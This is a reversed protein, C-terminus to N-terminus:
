NGFSGASWTQDYTEWFNNASDWYVDPIGTSPSLTATITEAEAYVPIKIDQGDSYEM